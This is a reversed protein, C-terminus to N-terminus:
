IWWGLVLSVIFLSVVAASVYVASLVQVTRPRRMIGSEVRKALIGKLEKATMHGHAPDRAIEGLEEDYFGDEILETIIKGVPM